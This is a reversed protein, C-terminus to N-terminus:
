QLARSFCSFMIVVGPTTEALADITAPSMSSADIVRVNALHGYRTSDRLFLSRDPTFEGNAGVHFGSYITVREGSAVGQKVLKNIHEAAAPVPTSSRHVMGGAANRVATWQRQRLQPEALGQVVDRTGHPIKPAAGAIEDASRRLAKGADDFPGPFIDPAGPPAAVGYAVAAGMGIAPNTVAAQVARGAHYQLTTSLTGAGASAAAFPAAAAITAGGIAKGIKGYGEMLRSSKDWEALKKSVLRSYSRDVAAALRAEEEAQAEEPFEERYWGEVPEINLECDRPDRKCKFLLQRKHESWTPGDIVGQDKLRKFAAWDRHPHEGTVEITEGPVQDNGQANQPSNSVPDPQMGLRDHLRVPNNLVYVYLNLGGAVGIPDSSVWRGMWPAYYRAGHYNLGSEEDREMGTYRYRKATEVQSRVAQYSTNGYPYYEEYSIVQGTADLELCASGLHNGCQYRVLQSPVSPEDGQTRTEVLAIRQQDDM